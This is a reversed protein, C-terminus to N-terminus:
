FLFLEDAFGMEDRPVSTSRRSSVLLCKAAMKVGRGSLCELQSEHSYQRVVCDVCFLIKQPFLLIPKFLAYM